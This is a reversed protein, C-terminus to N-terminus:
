QIKKTEEDNITIKCTDNICTNVITEKKAININLGAKINEKKLEEIM